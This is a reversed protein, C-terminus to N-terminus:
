MYVYYRKVNNALMFFVIPYVKLVLLGVRGGIYREGVWEWTGMEWAIQYPLKM